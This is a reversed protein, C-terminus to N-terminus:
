EIEIGNRELAERMIAVIGELGSNMKMLSIVHAYLDKSPLVNHDALRQFNADRTGPYAAWNQGSWLDNYRHLDLGYIILHDLIRVDDCFLACKVPRTADSIWLNPNAGDELLLRVIDIKGYFCAYSLLSFDSGEFLMNADMGKELFFLLMDVYGKTVIKRAISLFNHRRAVTKILDTYVFYGETFFVELLDIRKKTAIIYFFRIFKEKPPNRTKVFLDRYESLFLRLINSSNINAIIEKRKRMYLRLSNKLFTYEEVTVAAALEQQWNM